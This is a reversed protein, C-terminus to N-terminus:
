RPTLLNASESHKETQTQTTSLTIDSLYIKKSEAVVKNLFIFFFSPLFLPPNAMRGRHRLAQRVTRVLEICQKAHERGVQTM